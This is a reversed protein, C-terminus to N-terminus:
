LWNVLIDILWNANMKELVENLHVYNVIYHWKTKYIVNAMNFPGLFSLKM